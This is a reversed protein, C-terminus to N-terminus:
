ADTRAVHVTAAYAAGCMHFFSRNLFVFRHAHLLYCHLAARYIPYDLRAVHQGHAITRNFYAAGSLFYHDICLRVDDLLDHDTFFRPACM